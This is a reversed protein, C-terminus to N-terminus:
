KSQQSDKTLENRVCLRRHHFQFLVTKLKAVCYSRSYAYISDDTQRDTRRDMRRRRQASHSLSVDYLLLTQILTCSTRM